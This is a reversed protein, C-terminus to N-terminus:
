IQSLQSSKRLLDQAEERLVDCAEPKKLYSFEVSLFFVESGRKDLVPHSRGRDAVYLLSHAIAKEPLLYLRKSADSISQWNREPIARSLGTPVSHLREFGCKEVNKFSPVAKQDVVAFVHPPWDSLWKLSIIHRYLVVQLQCGQFNEDVLTSGIEGWLDDEVGHRYFGTLAIIEGAETELFFLSEDQIASRIMEEPRSSVFPNPHSDLFKCFRRYSGDLDESPARILRLREM